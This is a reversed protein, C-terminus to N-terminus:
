SEPYGVLVHCHITDYAVIDEPEDAPGDVSVIVWLTQHEGNWAEPHARVESYVGRFQQKYLRTDNRTENYLYFWATHLTNTNYELDAFGGHECDIDASAKTPTEPGPPPGSPPPKPSTPKAPMVFANSRGARRSPGKRNVARVACRYSKSWSLGSVMAATNRSSGVRTVGGNRSVCRIRYRLIRAGGSRIPRDYTVNVTNTKGVPRAVVSRPPGPRRVAASADGAATLGIFSVFALGGAMLTKFRKRRIKRNM